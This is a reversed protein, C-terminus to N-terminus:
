DSLSPILSALASANTVSVGRRDLKARFRHRLGNGEFRDRIVVGNM